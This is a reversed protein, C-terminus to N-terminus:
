TSNEFWNKSLTLSATSRSMMKKEESFNRLFYESCEFFRPTLFNQRLGFSHVDYTSCKSSFVSTAACLPWSPLKLSNKQKSFKM